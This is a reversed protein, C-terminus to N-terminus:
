CVKCLKSFLKLFNRNRNRNSNGTKQAVRGCKEVNQTMKGRKADNIWM